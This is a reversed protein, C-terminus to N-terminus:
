YVNAGIATMLANVRTSLNAADTDTLGTGIHAFSLKSNGFNNPGRLVAWNGTGLIAASTFSYKNGGNRFNAGATGTSTALFYAKRSGYDSGHLTERSNGDGINIYTEGGAVWNVLVRGAGGGSSLVGMFENQSTMSILYASYSLDSYPTGTSALSTGLSKNTGNGALGAGSGAALYDGSVFNANTLTATGAHKLKAMLGGFTVGSLLYVETLKTWISDTKCGAIFNSIATKVYDETYTGNIGSLDFSGGLAEARTFYNLADADYSAGGGAGDSGVVSSAVPRIVSRVTPSAVGSM